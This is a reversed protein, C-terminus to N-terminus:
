SPTADARLASRSPSLMEPAIGFDKLDDPLAGNAILSAVARAAAPATMIGSGGQGALWGLGPVEPDM